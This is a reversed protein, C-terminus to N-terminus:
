LNASQANFGTILRIAIPLSVYDIELWHLEVMSLCGVWLSVSVGLGEKLLEEVHKADRATTNGAKFLRQYHVQLLFGSLFNLSM